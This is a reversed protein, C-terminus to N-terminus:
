PVITKVPPIADNAPSLRSRGSQEPCAQSHPKQIADTWQGINDQAQQYLM